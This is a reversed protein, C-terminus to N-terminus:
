LPLFFTLNQFDNGSAGQVDSAFMNDYYCTIVIAYYRIIVIVHTCGYMQHSSHSNRFLNRPIPMMLGIVVDGRAFGRAFLSIAYEIEDPSLHIPPLAAIERVKELKDKTIFLPKEEIFRPLETEQSKGNKHETNM